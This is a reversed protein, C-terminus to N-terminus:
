RRFEVLFARGYPPQAAKIANAVVRRSPALRADAGLGVVEGIRAFWFFHRSQEVAPINGLMHRTRFAM